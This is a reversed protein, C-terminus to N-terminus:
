RGAGPRLLVRREARQLPGTRPAGEADLLTFTLTHAGGSLGALAFPGPAARTGVDAGDVTVRARFAQAAPGQSAVPFALLDVRVQAAEGGTLEGEPTAVVLALASPDVGADRAPPGVFFPVQVLSSPVAEHTEWAAWARVVHAGERLGEFTVPRAPDDVRRCPEADLAVCVHRLDAPDSVNRWREVELRVELRNERLAANAVPARILVRPPPTPAARRELEVLATGTPASPVVPQSADPENSLAQAAADVGEAGSSRPAAPSSPEGGRASSCAGAALVACLSATLVRM